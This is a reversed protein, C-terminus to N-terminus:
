ATFTRPQPKPQPSRGPPLPHLRRKARRELAKVWRDSGCPLGSKLYKEIRAAREAASEELFGPYTKTTFRRHWAAMMLPFFEDSQGTLHATASSFEWAALNTSLNHKRPNTEIYRFAAWYHAADLVCSHFRGQFLHGTRDYKANFYMAWWTHVRLFLRALAKDTLPVLLFHVHNDLICYGHIEVQEEAAVLAFRKLYKRKDSACRFLRCGDVGRATAHVPIRARVFRRLRAM